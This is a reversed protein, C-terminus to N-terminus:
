SPSWEICAEKQLCPIAHLHCCGINECLLSHTTFIHVLIDQGVWAFSAQRFVGWLVSVAICFPAVILGLKSLSGLIPVNIYTAALRPFWRCCNCAHLEGIFKKADQGWFMNAQQMYIQFQNESVAWIEQWIRTVPIYVPNESVCAPLKLTTFLNACKSKLM